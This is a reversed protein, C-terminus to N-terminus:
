HLVVAADFADSPRSAGCASNELVAITADARSLPAIPPGYPDDRIAAVAGVPYNSSPPLAQRAIRELGFPPWRRELEAADGDTIRVAIVAGDDARGRVRM